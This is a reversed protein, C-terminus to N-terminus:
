ELLITINLQEANLLVDYLRFRTFSDATARMESRCYLKNKSIM